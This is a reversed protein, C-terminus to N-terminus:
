QSQTTKSAILYVMATRTTGAGAEVLPRLYRKFRDQEEPSLAQEITEGMTPVNPNGASNLFVDWSEPKKPEIHLEMYLDISGFGAKDAFRVLDREDFDIMSQIASPYRLVAVKEWLDHVPGIEYGQYASMLNDPVPVPFRNIPEFLSIRGGPKLVRHFEALAKQKDSVYILVSRTTVLDFFDSPVGQLDDASARVFRCRDGVHAEAALQRAHRRLPECIDAFWVTSRETRELAAFAILGDGCGVDLLTRDDAFKGYELIRDRVPHLEDLMAERKAADGGHRRELLWRKWHDEM